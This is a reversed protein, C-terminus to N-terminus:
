SIVATLDVPATFTCLVELIPVELGFASDGTDTLEAPCTEMRVISANNPDSDGNSDWAITLKYDTPAFTGTYIIWFRVGDAWDCSSDLIFDDCIAEQRWASAVDDYVYTTIYWIPIWYDDPTYGSGSTNHNEFSDIEVAFSFATFTTLCLILLKM